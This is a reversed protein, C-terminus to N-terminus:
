ARSEWFALVQTALEAAEIQRRGMLTAESAELDIVLCEEYVGEEFVGAEYVGNHRAISISAHRAPDVTFHKGGNAIHSCIRLLPETKRLPIKDLWDAMHEATVFFNFAHWANGPHTCVNKHEWRLKQMLDSATALQFFGAKM